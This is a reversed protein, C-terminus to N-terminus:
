KGSMWAIGKQIAPYVPLTWGHGGEYTVLETRAGHKRLTAKAEEAIAFKCVEDEPSHLIYYAHGKAKGLPPLDAPRFISMAIFSGKVEPLTLSIAYAAPGGSSWSLTWVRTSDIKHKKKVEAIVNKAFEETPFEMNEAKVRATPWVIRQDPTWKPPVLEAVIVDDPVGHRAIRKVFPLFGEGGDGGPLVLLLAYGKSPPTKARPPILFYRQNADNGARLDEAKIDAIDRDDQGRIAVALVGLLLWATLVHRKM